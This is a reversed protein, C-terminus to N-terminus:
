KKFPSQGWYNGAPNYNCVVLYSGDSCQVIACGVQTTQAWIMQTYHGAKFNDNNMVGGDYDQKEEGWSDIAGSPTAAYGSCWFLNEGYIQKWEGSSPRHEMDCGKKALNEGWALAYKALDNSWTLPGVNVDARYRNHVDVFEKIQAASLNKNATTNNNGNVVTNNTNQTSNTGLKALYGDLDKINFSAIGDKVIVPMTISGGKFDPSNQVVEWMKTNSDDDKTSYEVYKINNKKMYEISMACRGCGPMTYIEIKSKSSNNNTINSNNNVNSKSQLKGDVWTGEQVGGNVDTYKGYGDYKGNKWNGDYTSGKAWTFKGQGSFTNNSFQGEYKDKSEFVYVGYGDKCNGSICGTKPKNNQSSGTTLKAMFGEMDKINFNVSGQKVIVPMTISGGKFDPSNQLLEWMKTNYDENDTSYEVYQINNKDMYAISYACRGCGPMTYIEIPGQSLLISYNITVLLVLFALKYYKTKM